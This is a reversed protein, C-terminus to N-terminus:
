TPASILSTSFQKRYNLHFPTKLISPDLMKYNLDSSHKSSSVSFLARNKGRQPLSAEYPIQVHLHSFISHGRRTDVSTPSTSSKKNINQTGEEAPGGESLLCLSTVRDGGGGCGMGGFVVERRGGLVGCLQRSKRRCGQPTVCRCGAKRRWSRSVGGCRRSIM